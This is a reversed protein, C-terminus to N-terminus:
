ARAADGHGLDQEGLSMTEYWARVQRLHEEEQDLAHEFAEAIEDQEAEKVLAILLGWAAEDILEAALLAHLSQLVTTRPDTVSHLLGATQMAVVDACPTQATADGGLREIADRVLAFHALEERM